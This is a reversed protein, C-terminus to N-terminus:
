KLRELLAKLVDAAEQNAAGGYTIDECCDIAGEIARREADTLRMRDIEAAKDRLCQVLAAHYDEVTPLRGDNIAWVRKRAIIGYAADSHNDPTDTTM